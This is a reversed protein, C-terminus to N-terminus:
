MREPTNIGLYRIKIMGGPFDSESVLFHTTDGDIFTEVAAEMKVTDSSLNLQVTGAFDTEGEACAPALGALCLLLFCVTFFRYIKNM